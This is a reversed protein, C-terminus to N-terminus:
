RLSKGITDLKQSTKDLIKDEKNEIRQADLIKEKYEVDDSDVFTYKVPESEATDRVTQGTSVTFLVTIIVILLRKKM